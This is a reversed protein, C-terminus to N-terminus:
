FNRRNPDTEGFFNAINNVPSPPKVQPLSDHVSMVSSKFIEQCMECRVAKIIVDTSEVTVERIQEVSCKECAHCCKSNDYEFRAKCSFCQYELM